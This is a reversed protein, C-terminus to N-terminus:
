RNRILNIGRNPKQPHLSQLFQTLNPRQVFVNLLVLAMAMAEYSDKFPTNDPLLWVAVLILSSHTPSILLVHQRTINIQRKKLQLMLPLFGYLSIIRAMIFILVAMLMTFWHNIFVSLQLQIIMLGFIVVGVVFRLNRFLTRMYRIERPTLFQTHAKSMILTTTMIAMIGSVGFYHLSSLYSLWITISLLILNVRYNQINTTILGGIVGWIFGFVIGGFLGWLWHLWYWTASSYIGSGATEAATLGAVGSFVMLVMVSIFLYDVQVLTTFRTKDIAIKDLNNLLTLLKHSPFTDTIFILLSAALILWYNMGSLHNFAWLFFLFAFLWSIIFIPVLLLMPKLRQYRLDHIRFRYAADALLVPLLLYIALTQFQDAPLAPVPRFLTLGNIVVFGVMLFGAALSLKWHRKLWGSIAIAVLLVLLLLSILGVPHAENM